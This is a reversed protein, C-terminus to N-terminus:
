DISSEIKESRIATMPQEGTECLSALATTGARRFNFHTGDPSGIKVADPGIHPLARDKTPLPSGSGAATVLQAQIGRHPEQQHHGAATEGISGTVSVGDFLKQEAGIKRLWKDDTSSLTQGAILSTGTDAISLKASQETEYNREPRAAIGPM